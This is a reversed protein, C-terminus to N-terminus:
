YIFEKILQSRSVPLELWEETAETALEKTKKELKDKEALVKKEKEVELLKKKWSNASAELLKEQEVRISRRMSLALKSVENSVVVLHPEASIPM